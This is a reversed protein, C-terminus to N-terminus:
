KHIKSVNVNILIKTVSILDNLNMLPFDAISFEFEVNNARFVSYHFNQLLGKFLVGREIKMVKVIKVLLWVYEENKGLIAHFRIKLFTYKDKNKFDDALKFQPSAM